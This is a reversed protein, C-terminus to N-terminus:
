GHKIEPNPITISEKWTFKICHCKMCPGHGKVFLTNEHESRKHGCVCWEDIIVKGNALPEWMYTENQIPM